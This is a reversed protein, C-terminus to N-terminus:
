FRRTLRHAHSWAPRKSPARLAAALAFSRCPAHTAGRSSTRKAKPSGHLVAAACVRSQLLPPRVRSPPAPRDLHAHLQSYAKAGNVGRLPPKQLAPSPPVAFFSLRNQGAFALRATCAYVRFFLVRTECFVASNYPTPPDAVESPRPELAGPRNSQITHPPSPHTRPGIPETDPPRGHSQVPGPDADPHFADPRPPGSHRRGRDETTPNDDM